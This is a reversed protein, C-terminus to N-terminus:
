IAVRKIVALKQELTYGITGYNNFESGGSSQAEKKARAREAPSERAIIQMEGDKDLYSM